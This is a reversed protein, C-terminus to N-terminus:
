PDPRIGCEPCVPHKEVVEDGSPDIITVRETRLEADPHYPCTTMTDRTDSTDEM